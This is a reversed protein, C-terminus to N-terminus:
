CQYLQCLEKFVALNSQSAGTILHWISLHINPQLSKIQVPITVTSTCKHLHSCFRSEGHVHMYWLPFRKRSKQNLSKKEGGSHREHWSSHTNKGRASVSTNALKLAKRTPNCRLRIQHEMLPSSWWCLLIPSEVNICLRCHCHKLWPLSFSPYQFSSNLSYERSSMESYDLLFDSQAVSLVM